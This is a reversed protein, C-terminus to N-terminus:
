PKEKGLALNVLLCICIAILAGILLQADIDGSDIWEFFETVTRVGLSPHLFHRRGLSLGPAAWGSPWVRVTRRAIGHEGALTWNRPM